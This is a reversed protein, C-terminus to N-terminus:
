ASTPDATRRDLDALCRAGHYDRRCARIFLGRDAMLKACVMHDVVLRLVECLLDLQDRAPAARVHDEVRDAAVDEVSGGLAYGEFAADHDDAERRPADGLGRGIM